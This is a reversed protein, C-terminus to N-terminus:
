PKFGSEMLLTVIDNYVMDPMLFTTTYIERVEQHEDILFVKLVHSFTGLWKGTDPDKELYVDQGYDDLIPLLEGVSATTLFNWEVPRKADANDGAYLRLMEPTDRAPDFSLSLLQVKGAFRPDRELRNQLTHFVIYAYPCGNPDSCSSYIFSLLTVKGQTFEALDRRKGNLDLVKGGPARMIHMLEYSGPVPPTFEPTIM